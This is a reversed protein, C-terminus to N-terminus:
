PVIYTVAQNLLNLIVRRGYTMIGNLLYTLYVTQKTREEETEELKTNKARPEVYAPLSANDPTDAFRDGDPLVHGRMPQKFEAM